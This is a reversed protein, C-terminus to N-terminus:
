PELLHNRLWNYPIRLFVWLAWLARHAWGAWRHIWESDNSDQRPALPGAFAQKAFGLARNYLQM